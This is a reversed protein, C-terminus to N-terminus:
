SDTKTARWGHYDHSYVHDYRMPEVNRFSVSGMEGHQGAVKDYYSIWFYGGNGWSSGWSNKALWAGPQSAQTRRNDDWGLIAVAHNPASSSTRPQYFSNRSSNYFSNSWTIATGIVGGEM